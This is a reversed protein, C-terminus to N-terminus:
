LSFGRMGFHLGQNGQDQGSQFSPGIFAADVDTKGAFVRVASITKRSFFVLRFLSSQQCLRIKLPYMLEIIAPFNVSIM